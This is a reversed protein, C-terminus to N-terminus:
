VVLRVEAADRADFCASIFMLKKMAPIRGHLKLNLWVLTAVKIYINLPARLVAVVLVHLLSM